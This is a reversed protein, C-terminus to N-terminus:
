CTVGTRRAWKALHRANKRVRNAFMDALPTVRTDSSAVHTNTAM